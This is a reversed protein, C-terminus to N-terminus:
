KSKRAKANAALKKEVAKVDEMPIHELGDIIAETKNGASNVVDIIRDSKGKRARLKAGDSSDSAGSLSTAKASQIIEEVSQEKWNNSENVGAKLQVLNSYYDKRVRLDNDLFNTLEEEKSLVLKFAKSGILYLAFFLHESFFLTLMLMVSSSINVSAKDLAFQGLTKPPKTGNRYFATVVPSVVSGAWALIFFAQDWPHILDSRSPVPPRFYKGNALRLNDLKFVLVNFLLCVLPALTWVPGFMSLYGFQLALARFDDHLNFEPKAIATRVASLWKSEDASDKIPAEPQKKLIKVMVLNIIKPLILPLVYKLFLQIVQNTVMFFFFQSNLRDQNMIFDEQRKVKAFYHLMYKSEPLTSNISHEIDPIYNEVLHAFPLYVFSTVLLPVYGTLFNLIFTKALFSDYRTYRNNHSEWGLFKEVVMNYVITLIPVFVALAVTPVLKLFVKLPGDYIESMFIELAFCLMQFTFLIAVFALAVPVFAWQKIFRSGDKRELHKYTSKVEFNKNLAALEANHQVLKHSNQVGWTSALYRERRKWSLIFLIGGVLNVFTYSMSYQKSKIFAITGMISLLFLYGIYHKLFEFYLAIGTGYVNKIGSTLLSAAFVSKKSRAVLSADSLYSSIAMITEVISTKDTTIGLGNTQKSETLYGYILLSRDAPADDKVTVGCEFCKILDQQVLETFALTSLQVFILTSDATGPRSRCRFGGVLLTSILSSLENESSDKKISLVFDSDQISM